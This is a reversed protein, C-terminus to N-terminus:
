EINHKKLITKVASLLNKEVYKPTRLVKKEEESMDKLMLSVPRIFSNMECNQNYVGSEVLFPICGQVKKIASYHCTEEELHKLDAHDFRGLNGEHLYRNFLNAGLIDSEPNDSYFLLILNKRQFLLCVLGIVYLTEIPTLGLNYAMKQACYTAHLYSIESPKGLIGSYHLEHGTLKKYLTELCTLFIGHGFRPLPTHSEAMWLLDLNCAIIPLHPHAIAGRTITSAAPNGNTLLVDILLQLASEWKLPEGLLIIAEIPEFSTQCINSLDHRRRKFNVCDLHPFLTGLDDLTTVKKFGMKVGIEEVPGQGVMLVHKNHLDNFMRLPSQALVVQSPMIEVQLAESLRQARTIRM